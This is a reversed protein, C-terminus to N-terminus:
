KRRWHGEPISEQQHCCFIHNEAFSVGDINAELHNSGLEEVEVGISDGFWPPEDITFTVNLYPAYWDRTADVRAKDVNWDNEATIWGDDLWELLAATATTIAEQILEGNEKEAM